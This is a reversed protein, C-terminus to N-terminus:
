QAIVIQSSKLPLKYCAAERHNRVLLYEGALAPPNWTKGNLASFRTREIHREPNADLMILEGNEAMVLIHNNRLLIQGHGYRGDKWKPRGKEMEMCSFIGDDLGFVHNNHFILNTFKAKMRRSHWLEKASYNGDQQSLEILKSGNGYGLSVLLQNESVILPVAVHPTSTAWPFTWLVKGNEPSHASLGDHNFILIQREKNISFSIASSYGAPSSGGKWIPNGNYIDYAILSKGNEGGASVIVKDDIVLPSSSFGWEKSKNRPKSAGTQDIPENSDLEADSVLNRQWIKKGNELDLCSLAGEAGLAFVKNKVITPTARPGEGAIATNYHGSNETIWLVEGTEIHYCTVSENEERQEQTIARYGSISFGSWAAGIAQRWLQKPPNKVWDTALESGTIKCDRNTGLFQSFSLTSLYDPETKKNPNDPQEKKATPLERQSWRWEFIPVMNGSFQSFRFCTLFVGTVLTISGLIKLRTTGSFRAFFLAWILLLLFGIATTGITKFVQKQHNDGETTGLNFDQDTFFIIVLLVASIIIAPWWRPKKNFAKHQSDTM